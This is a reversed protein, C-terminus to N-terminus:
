KDARTKVEDAISKARRGLGRWVRLGSAAFNLAGDGADKPLRKIRERYLGVITVLVLLSVVLVLLTVNVQQETAKQAAMMDQASQILESPTATRYTPHPDFVGM